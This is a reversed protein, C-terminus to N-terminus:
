IAALEPESKAGASAAGRKSRASAALVLRDIEDQIENMAETLRPIYTGGALVAGFRRLYAELEGKAQKLVQIRLDRDSFVRDASLYSRRDDGEPKAVYFARQSVADGGEIRVRVAVLGGLLDRAQSVRYAAGAKADDWEFAPHIPSAPDAAVALVDDARVGGKQQEISEVVRGFVDADIPPTPMGKRWEYKLM